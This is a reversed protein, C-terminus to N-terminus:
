PMSESESTWEGEERLNNQLQVQGCGVGSLCFQCSAPCLLFGFIIWDVCMQPASHKCDACSSSSVPHCLSLQIDRHNLRLFKFGKAALAGFPFSVHPDLSPRLSREMGTANLHGSRGQRPSSQHLVSKKLM